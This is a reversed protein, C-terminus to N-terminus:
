VCEKWNQFYVSICLFHFWKIGQPDCLYLMFTLYKTGGMKKLYLYYQWLVNKYQEQVDSPTFGSDLSRNTSNHTLPVHVDDM